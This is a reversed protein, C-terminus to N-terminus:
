PTPMPSLCAALLPVALLALGAAPLVTWALERRLNWSGPEPDAQDVQGRFLWLGLLIVGELMLFGALTLKVVTLFPLDSM